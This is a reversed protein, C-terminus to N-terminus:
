REDAVSAGYRRPTHPDDKPTGSPTRCLQGPAAKCAPCPRHAWSRAAHTRAAPPKRKAQSHIDRCRLGPRAGCRPCTFDLPPRPDGLATILASM